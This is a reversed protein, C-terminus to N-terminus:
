LSWDSIPLGTLERLRTAEERFIAELEARVAPELDPREHPTTFLPRLAHPTRALLRRYREFGLGAQVVGGVRRFVARSQREPAMNHVSAFAPSEFEQDVGLFAFVSRLVEQRRRQLEETELVLIRERPFHELHRELQTAYRGADVYLSRDESALAEALTRRDHGFSHSLAYQSFLREMPDRVLYILKADPVVQAMREPVGRYTPYLSYQPTAEGRVPADSEFQREYWAIGRRWNLEQVFFMLEKKEAMFIEPHEGLYYHLSTTGGRGAGIIILNPLM